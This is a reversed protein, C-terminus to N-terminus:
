TTALSPNMISTRVLASIVSASRRAIAPPVGPIVSISFAPRATASATDIRLCPRDTVITAPGPLLPPSPKTAARMRASRLVAFSPGPANRQERARLGRERGLRV